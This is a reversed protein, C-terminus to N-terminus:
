DWNELGSGSSKNWTDGCKDECLSLPGQELGVEVWFIQYERTFNATDVLSPNWLRPGTVKKTAQRALWTPVSRYLGRMHINNDRKQGRNLFNM